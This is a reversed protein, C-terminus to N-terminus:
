GMEYKARAGRDVKRDFELSRIGESSMLTRAFRVFQDPTM